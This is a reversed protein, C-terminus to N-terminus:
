EQPHTWAKEWVGELGKKGTVRAVLSPVIAEEVKGFSRGKKESGVLEKWSGRGRPGGDARGWTTGAQPKPALHRRSAIM